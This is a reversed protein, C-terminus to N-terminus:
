KLFLLWASLSLCGLLTSQAIVTSVARHNSGYAAAFLHAASSTPLAAFLTLVITHGKDLRLLTCTGYTLLPLFILKIANLATSFLNLQALKELQLTAGVSVLAMPIAAQSLLDIPELILKPVPVGWTALFIGVVSALFVSNSTIQRLSELFNASGGHSLAGIAMINAIPIAMGVALSMYGWYAQPMVQVVALGLATNFRFATQWLGAFDLLKQPGIGRLSWGLLAGMILIAWAGVGVVVIDGTRLTHRLSAMFILAPFLVQFNIRDIGAWMELSLNQRLVRGLALLFFYPALTAFVTM